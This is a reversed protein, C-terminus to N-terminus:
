KHPIECGMATAIEGSDECTAITAPRMVTGSNVVWVKGSEHDILFGDVEADGAQGTENQSGGGSGAGAAM